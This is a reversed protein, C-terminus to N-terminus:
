YKDMVGFDFPTWLSAPLGSRKLVSNTWTNCTKFCHYSGQAEYFNDNTSYSQGKLMQYQNNADLSFDAFAFEILKELQKESVLVKRWEKKEASYRTVHMLTASKWFMATVANKFTLDAWEPTNIYFNKDGWGISLYQEDEKYYINKLQNSDLLVIPIIVDTHVGNTGVFLTHTKIYDSQNKNVTINSGVYAMIFYVVLFGVFFLISKLLIGAIKKVVGKM